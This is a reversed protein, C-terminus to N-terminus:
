QTNRMLTEGFNGNWTSRLNAVQLGVLWDNIYDYLREATVIDEHLRRATELSAQLTNNLREREDETLRANQMTVYCMADELRLLHYHELTQPPVLPSLEVNFERRVVNLADDRVEFHSQRLAILKHHVDEAIQSLLDLPPNEQSLQREVFCELLAPKRETLARDLLDMAELRLTNMAALSFLGLPDTDHYMAVKRRNESM